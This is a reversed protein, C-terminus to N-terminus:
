PREIFRVNDFDPVIVYYVRVQGTELHEARQARYQIGNVPVDFEPSNPVFGDSFIRRQLAANLDFQIVQHAEAEALLVDRGLMEAEARGPILIPRHMRGVEGVVPLFSGNGKRVWVFLERNWKDDDSSMIFPNVSNLYSHEFLQDYYELIERTMVDPHLDHGGQGNSNGCETIDIIKNPFKEHYKEFALGWDAELHRPAGDFTQWYCHVGLWDARELAESCLELWEQENHPSGAGWGAVALGPFGLQAWPCEEKLGSYVDLFWTNFERAAEEAPGWCSDGGHNPENLVEFRECLVERRQDVEHEHLQDMIPVFKDVFEEPSPPTMGKAVREPWDLRITIEIGPNETKIRHYVDVSTQSMGKLAELKAERIMGYDSERYHPANRGHIGIRVSRTNHPMKIEEKREVLPFSAFRVASPM